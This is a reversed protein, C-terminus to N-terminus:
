SLLANLDIFIIAAALAMCALFAAAKPRKIWENFTLRFELSSVGMYLSILLLPGALVLTLFM